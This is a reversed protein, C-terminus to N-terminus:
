NFGTGYTCRNSEAEAGSALTNTEFSCLSCLQACFGLPSNYSNVPILIDQTRNRCKYENPKTRTFSTFMFLGSLTTAMLSIYQQSNFQVCSLIKALKVEGLCTCNIFRYSQSIDQALVWLPHYSHYGALGFARKENRYM